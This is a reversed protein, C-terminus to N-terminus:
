CLVCERLVSLGVQLGIELEDGQFNVELPEDAESESSSASLNLNNETLKFKVSSGADALVISVRNLVQQILQLDRWITSPHVGFAPALATPVGRPFMVAWLNEDLWAAIQARRADARRRRQANYRRRGGARRKAAEPDIWRNWDYRNM